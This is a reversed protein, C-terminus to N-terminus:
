EKIFLKKIGKLTLILKGGKAEDPNDTVNISDKKTVSPIDDTAQGTQELITKNKKLLAQALDQTDPAQEAILADDSAKQSLHELNEQLTKNIDGQESAKTKITQPKAQTTTTTTQGEDIYDLIADTDFSQADDAKSAAQQYLEDLDVPKRDTKGSNWEVYQEEGTLSSDIDTRKQGKFTGEATKKATVKPSVAKTTQGEDIYDLIADTDFSQADDAKSAAQQYLEDLDVPKKDAKGSNWEVYQEEGSLSEDIDIKSKSNQASDSKPTKESKINFTTKLNTIFSGSKFANISNKISKPAQKICEFTSKIIGMKSTDTGSAKLASKAGIVSTAVATTGTGMGQWANKAEIDTKANKAKYANVGIQIGGGIAGAAVLVPAAAGGTAAILLGTGAIMGAGILFNKPSKFMTTIPAVIGKAFNKVKESLTIKGDDKGDTCGSKVLTDKDIKNSLAPDAAKATAPKVGGKMISLIQQTQYNESFINNVNGSSM